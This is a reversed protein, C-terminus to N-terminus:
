REIKRLLNKVFYITEHLPPVTLGSLYSRYSIQLIPVTVYVSLVVMALDILIVPVAVMTLNETVGSLYAASVGLVSFVLYGWAIPRHRNTGFRVSSIVRWMGELITTLLLVSFLTPLFDIQQHTWIRFVMPGLLFLVGGVLLSSWFTVRSLLLVLRALLEKDNEAQLLGAESRLPAVVLQLVSSILRTLTRHTTFLAVAAPGVTFGVVLTMGQLVFAQALPLLMFELGMRIYPTVNEHTRRLLYFSPPMNLHKLLVTKSAYELLGIFLIILAIGAPGAEYILVAVSVAIIRMFVFGAMLMLGLHFLKLARLGGILALGNQAVLANLSLLLFTLVAESRTFHSLNFWEHLPIFFVGVVLICVVVLTWAFYVSTYDQFFSVVRQEDEISARRALENSGAAIFGMDSLALYVPITTLLVWEGYLNISWASLLIPVLLLQETLRAFLGLGSAGSGKIIRVSSARM